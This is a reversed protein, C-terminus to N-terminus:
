KPLYFDETLAKYAPTYVGRSEEIILETPTYPQETRCFSILSRKLPATATGKTRLLAHPYLGQAAALRIFSAEEQYPIIVAFRGADSLLQAVGEILTEFPLAAASRATSRATEPAQTDATYFPPNSIIFDYLTDIEAVLEEFSAHYCFLRDGWPSNEFNDTCEIYAAEDIEVADILPADSRQAIMLSLLGTGAGIDLVSAATDEIPAWAGLLVGDTSIKMASHEQKVSFEKFQFIM